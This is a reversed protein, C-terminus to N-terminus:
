DLLGLEGKRLMTKFIEADNKGDFPFFGGLLIFMVLQGSTLGKMTIAVSPVSWKMEPAMYCPTGFKSSSRMRKKRHQKEHCRSCHTDDMCSLGFDILVM